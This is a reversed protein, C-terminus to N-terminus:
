SQERRRIPPATALSSPHLKGLRSAYIDLDAVVLVFCFPWLRQRQSDAIHVRRWRRGFLLLKLCGLKSLVQDASNSGDSRWPLRRSNAARRGSTAIRGSAGNCPCTGIGSQLQKTLM